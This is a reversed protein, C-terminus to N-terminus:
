RGHAANPDQPCALLRAAPAPGGPAPVLSATHRQVRVDGLAAATGKRPVMQPVVRSAPRKQTRKQTFQIHTPYLESGRGRPGGTAVPFPVTAAVSPTGVHGRLKARRVPATTRRRPAKTSGAVRHIMDGPSVATDSLPLRRLFRRDRSDEDEFQTHDVYLESGRSFAGAEGVPAPRRLPGGPRAVAGVRVPAQRRTAARPRWGGPTIV